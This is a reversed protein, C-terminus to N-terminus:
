HLMLIRARDLIAQASSGSAIPTPEHRFNKWAEVLSRGAGLQMRDGGGRRGLAVNVLVLQAHGAASVSWAPQAAMVGDAALAYRVQGRVFTGGAAQVSDHIAQQFPFMEWRSSLQTGGDVTWLSDLRILRLSDGSATRWALLLAGV